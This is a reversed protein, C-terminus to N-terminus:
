LTLGKRCSCFPMEFDSIRKLFTNYSKSEKTDNPLLNWMKPGQFRYSQYGYTKQNVKPIYLSNTNRSPYKSPREEIIDKMYAANLGNVTKYTECCM